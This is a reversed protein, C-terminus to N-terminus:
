YFWLWYVVVNAVVWMIIITVLANRCCRKNREEHWSM